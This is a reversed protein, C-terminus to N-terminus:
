GVPQEPIHGVLFMGFEGAASTELGVIGAEEEGNERGVVLAPALSDVEVNVGPVCRRTASGCACCMDNGERRWGDRGDRSGM